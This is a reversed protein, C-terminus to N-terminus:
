DFEFVRRPAEEVLKELEASVQAFGTKVYARVDDSNKLMDADLGKMINRGKEVLAALKDNNMVNQDSFGGIFDAINAIVGKFQARKGDGKKTISELMHDVLEKMAAALIGASEDALAAFQLKTRREEDKFMEEDLAKLSGPTDFSLIRREHGFAAKFSDQTAYDKEDFLEGLGGEEKPLKAKEIYGPYTEVAASVLAPRKSLMDDVKQVVRKLRKISIVYYGGGFAALAREKAYGHIKSDLSHVAKLEPSLIIKKSVRIRDASVDAESKIDATAVKRNDGPRNFGIRLIATRKAFNEGAEMRVTVDQLDEM